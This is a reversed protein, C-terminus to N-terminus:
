IKKDFEYGEWTQKAIGTWVPKKEMKMAYTLMMKSLTILTMQDVKDKKHMLRFQSGGNLLYVLEALFIDTENNVHDNINIGCANYFNQIGKDNIRDAM